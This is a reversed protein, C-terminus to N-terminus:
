LRHRELLAEYDGPTDIDNVIEPDYTDLYVVRSADKQLIDKATASEPLELLEGAVAASFAVPHGRHGEFRPIVVEGETGSVAAVTAPAVAPVDVLTLLFRSTDPPAARLGCQISTLMGARYRSNVVTRTGGVTTAIRQADHGLVVVTEDTTERFLRILRQLFTCGDFELLAKPTGMRSSEGASLIVGFQKM